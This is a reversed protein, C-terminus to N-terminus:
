ASLLTSSCGNRAATMPAPVDILHEYLDVTVCVKALPRDYSTGLATVFCHSLDAQRRKEELLCQLYHVPPITLGDRLSASFEPVLLYIPWPGLRRLVEGNQRLLPQTIESSYCKFNTETWPLM